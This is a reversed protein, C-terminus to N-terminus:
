AVVDSGLIRTIRECAAIHMKDFAYQVRDSPDSDTSRMQLVPTIARLWLRAQSEAGIMEATSEVLDDIPQAQLAGPDQLPETAM